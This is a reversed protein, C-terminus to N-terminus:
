FTNRRSYLFADVSLTILELTLVLVSRYGTLTQRANEVEKKGTAAWMASTLADEKPFKALMAQFSTVASDCDQLVRSLQEVLQPPYPQLAPTATDRAIMKLITDLSQLEYSIAETEDCSGGIEDVFLALISAAKNLNSILSICSVTVTLPEM